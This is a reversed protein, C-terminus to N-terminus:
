TAAERAVREYLGPSGARGTWFEFQRVGQAVLMALGDVAKLGASRAEQLLPTSLPKYVTEIVAADKPLAAIQERTLPSANEGAGGRMGASTCNVVAAPSLGAIADATQADLTGPMAVGALTLTDVLARAKDHTRNVITVKAGADLLAVCVARAAGGAGLVVLRKGALDGGVAAGAVHALGPGDTNHVEIREARGRGDRRIVLTNGAGCVESLRDLTWRADGEGRRERALRVLHEKHPTTVACGCLDLYPHEILDLMTAKFQEWEPMIPIPLFVGDHGLSEFGANHMAPSLSHEVPYGVVGYVKTASGISRFRYLDLLERVIPQGPATQQDRRLAAFTLFAGFKPALVRSMLGFPGMALAITPKGTAREALLDLLELNDRVSRARYAIKVVAAAPEQAMAGIRRILDTPRTHFDHASLILSTSLDRSQGPHDVALNVKQKINASRTYTALEVDIYRPPHERPANAQAAAGLREYLAIRADDPGDYQGGELVPRCTVIVPLPCESVLRVIAEAEEPEGTGAFWSDVRLEVLDAGADRAARVDQIALVPDDVFIPVCLLTM